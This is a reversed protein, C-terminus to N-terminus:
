TNVSHIGQHLPLLLGSLSPFCHMWARLYILLGWRNLLRYMNPMFKRGRSKLSKLQPFNPTRHLWYFARRKLRRGYRRWSTRPIRDLMLYVAQFSRPSIIGFYEYVCHCAPKKFYFRVYAGAFSKSNPNREVMLVRNQSDILILSSSLRPHTVKSKSSMAVESKFVPFSWHLSRRLMWDFIVTQCTIGALAFFHCSSTSRQKHGHCVGLEIGIFLVFHACNFHSFDVM